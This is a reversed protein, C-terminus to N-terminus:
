PVAPDDVDAHHHRRRDIALALPLDDPHVHTGTFVAGEPQGEWAADLGGPARLPTSSTTEASSMLSEAAGDGCDEASGAPLPAAGVEHGVQEHAMPCGPAGLGPHGGITRVM